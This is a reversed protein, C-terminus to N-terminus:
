IRPREAGGQVARLPQNAASPRHRGSGTMVMGRLAPFDEGVVHGQFDLADVPHVQVDVLGLKCNALPNHREEAVM